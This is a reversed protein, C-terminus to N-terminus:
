PPENPAAPAQARAISGAGAEKTKTIKVAATADDLVDELERASLHVLIDPRPLRGARIARANAIATAVADIM